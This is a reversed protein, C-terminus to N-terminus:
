VCTCIVPVGFVVLRVPTWFQKISCISINIKAFPEALFLM